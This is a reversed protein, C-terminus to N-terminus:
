DRQEFMVLKAIDLPERLARKFRIDAKINCRWNRDTDLKVKGLRHFDYEEKFEISNISKM